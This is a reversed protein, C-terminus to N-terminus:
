LACMSRLADTRRDIDARGIQELRETSFAEVGFSAVVSGNLLARRILPEDICVARTHALFGMFGGAFCDGAGTPDVVAEVPFASILAVKDGTVLMAGHEGKKIVVYEPGMDLIARACDMLNYHGTLLRAEADNVTILNARRIVQELDARAIRIWLDMTDLAVFPSGQVQDLVHLQLAPGINGLMVYPAARYAAPLEPSFQGFVGLDTKLTRRNIMDAEYVGSWRFTAGTRTQLGALDVGFRRYRELFSAPFDSGVVGVAGVETFFSAAACAYTVSGGLLDSRQVLPTGIEDIGISGVIWLKVDSM